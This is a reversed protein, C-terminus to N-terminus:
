SPRYREGKRQMARAIQSSRRIARRLYRLAASRSVRRDERPEFNSREADGVIKTLQRKAPVGIGVPQCAAASISPVQCPFLFPMEARATRRRRKRTLSGWEEHLAAPCIHFSMTESAAQERAEESLRRGVGRM